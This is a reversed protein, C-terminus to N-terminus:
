FHTLGVMENIMFRGVVYRRCSAMFNYILTDLNAPNLGYRVGDRPKVVEHFVLVIRGSRM